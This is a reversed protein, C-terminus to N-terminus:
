QVIYLTHTVHNQQSYHICCNTTNSTIFLYRLSYHCHHRTVTRKGGNITEGEGHTGNDHTAGDADPPCGNVKLSVTDGAAETSGSDGATDDVTYTVQEESARIGDM